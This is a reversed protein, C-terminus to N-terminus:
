LMTKLHVNKWKGFNIDNAKTFKNEAMGKLSGLAANPTTINYYTILASKENMTRQCQYLLKFGKTQTYSSSQLKM